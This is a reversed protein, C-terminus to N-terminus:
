KNRMPRLYTYTGGNENVVYYEDMLLIADHAKKM